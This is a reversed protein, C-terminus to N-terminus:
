RGSIKLGKKGCKLFKSGSNVPNKPGGFNTMGSFIFEACIIKRVAFTYVLEVYEGFDTTCGSRNKGVLKKGANRDRETKGLLCQKRGALEM